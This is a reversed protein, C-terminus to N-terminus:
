RVGVNHKADAYLFCSRKHHKEDGCAKTTYLRVLMKAVGLERDEKVSNSLKDLRTSAKHPYIIHTHTNTYGKSAQSHQGIM